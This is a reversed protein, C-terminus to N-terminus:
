RLIRILLIQQYLKLNDRNATYQNGRMKGSVFHARMKHKFNVRPGNEEAVGEEVRGWSAENSERITSIWVRSGPETELDLLNGMGDEKFNKM